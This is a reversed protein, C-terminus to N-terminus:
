KDGKNYEQQWILQIHRDESITMLLYNTKVDKVVVVRPYYSWSLNQAFNIRQENDLDYYNNDVFVGVENSRLLTDRILYRYPELREDVTMTSPQKIACGPLFGVVLALVVVFALIVIDIFPINKRHLM